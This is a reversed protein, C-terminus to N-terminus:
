VRESPLVEGRVSIFKERGVGEERRKLKRAEMKM